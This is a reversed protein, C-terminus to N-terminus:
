HEKKFYRCKLAWEFHLRLESRECHQILGNKYNEFVTHIEHKKFVCFRQLNRLFTKGVIFCCFTIEKPVFNNIQKYGLLKQQSLILPSLYDDSILLSALSSSLSISPAHTSKILPSFHSLLLHLEVWKCQCIPFSQRPMSHIISKDLKSTM